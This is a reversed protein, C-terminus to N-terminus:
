DGTPEKYDERRTPFMIDKFIGEFYRDTMGAIFDRVKEENSSNKLYDKNIWDLNIFYEYIKSKENKTDLDKLFKAFIETYM